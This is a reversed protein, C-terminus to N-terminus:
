SGSQQELMWVFRLVRSVQPFIKLNQAKKLSSLFIFLACREWSFLFPSPSCLLLEPLLVTNVTPEVVKFPFRLHKSLFWNFQRLIPDTFHRQMRQQFGTPQQLLIGRSIVAQESFLSRPLLRSLCGENLGWKELLFWPALWCKGILLVRVGYAVNMEIVKNFILKCTETCNLDTWSASLWSSPLKLLGRAWWM